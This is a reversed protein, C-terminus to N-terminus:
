AHLQLRERLALGQARLDESSLRDRDGCLRDIPERGVRGVSFRDRADVFRLSSRGEIRQDDVDAIEVCGDAKPFETVLSCREGLLM